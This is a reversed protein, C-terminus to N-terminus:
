EEEDQTQQQGFEEVGIDSEVMKHVDEIPQMSPTDEFVRSPSITITTKIRVFDEKTKLKKVKIMPITKEDFVIDINLIKKRNVPDWLEEACKFDLYKSPLQNVLYSTHNVEEAELLGTHIRMCREHKMLTRNMREAAANQHPTKKVIFHRKVGKSKCFELFKNDKYEGRNDCRLIKIKRGMLKEVEVKWEKLKTFVKSKEVGDHIKVNITVTGEIRCVSDERMMVKNSYDVEYADFWSKNSCMHYSCGSDLIWDYSSVRSSIALANTNVIINTFLLEGDSDKMVKAEEQQKEEKEMYSFEEELSGKVREGSKAVFGEVQSVGIVKEFKLTGDGFMLTMCFHKYSPPISTLLMVSKDESKYIEDMRKLDAICRNFASVHEMVSISEETKLSHFEEKLFLKNSLSKAVFMEELKEWIQKMTNEIANCLM